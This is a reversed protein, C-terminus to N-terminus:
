LRLKSVKTGELTLGAMLGATTLVFGVVSSRVTSTDIIGGAGTKVPVVSADVGVTWEDSAVFRQLSEETLFVVFVSKTEGGVSLGASGSSTKYYASPQGPWRLVGEGHSGALLLGGSVVKPFVLFGRANDLLERSGKVQSHLRSLAYDAEFDISYRKRKPDIAEQVSLCAPLGAVAFLPVAACALRRNV